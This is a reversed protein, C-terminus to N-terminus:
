RDNGVNVRLPKDRGIFGRLNAVLQRAKMSRESLENARAQLRDTDAKLKAVHRRRQLIAAPPNSEDIRYRSELQALEEHAVRWEARAERLQDSLAVYAARLDDSQDELRQLKTENYTM